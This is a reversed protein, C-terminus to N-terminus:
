STNAIQRMKISNYWGFGALSVAYGVGQIGTVVEGLFVFGIVVLLTNKVTALVKLTLSSALKITTYALSNVAFGMCASTFFIGPNAYVIEMAGSSSIRPFEFLLAGVSLWACCAPAMYMLGEIPHFKLGVLLSQTLVLRIAETTESSFMCLLGLYSLNVEGYAAVATGFATLLVSLIMQPSPDELRAIFLACM